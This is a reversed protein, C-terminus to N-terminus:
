PAQPWCCTVAFLCSCREGQDAKQTRSGLGRGKIEGYGLNKPRTARCCPTRPRGKTLRVMQRAATVWAQGSSDHFVRRYQLIIWDRRGIGGMIPRRNARNYLHFPGTLLSAGEGTG